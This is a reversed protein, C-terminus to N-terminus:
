CEGSLEEPHDKLAKRLSQIVASHRRSSSSSSAGASDHQLVADDLTDELRNKKRNSTLSGVITTLKTLATVVPDKVRRSNVPSSCSRRGGRCGGGRDGGSHEVEASEQSAVKYGSCRDTLKGKKGVLLASLEELQARDIGSQLAAKVAGPDLGAIGDGDELGGVRIASKPKPPLTAAVANPAAKPQGLTKM